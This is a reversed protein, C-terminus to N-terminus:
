PEPYIAMELIEQNFNKYWVQGVFFRLKLIFNKEEDVNTAKAVCNELEELYVRCWILFVADLISLLNYISMFLLIRLSCRWDLVYFAEKGVIFILYIANYHSLLRTIINTILAILVANFSSKIWPTSHLCRNLREASSTKAAGYNFALFVRAAFIFKTAINLPSIVVKLM